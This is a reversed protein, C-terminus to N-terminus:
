SYGCSFDKVRKNTNKNIENKYLPLSLSLSPSFSQITAEQVSGVLSGAQLGPVHGPTQLGVSLGCLVGTLALIKLEQTGRDSVGSVNQNYLYSRALHSRQDYM